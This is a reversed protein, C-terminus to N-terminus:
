KVSLPRVRGTICSDNDYGNGPGSTISVEARFGSTCSADANIDYTFTGAQAGKGFAGQYHGQNPDNDCRVQPLEITGNPPGGLVVPSLGDGGILQQFYDPPYITAPSLITSVIRVHAVPDLYLLFGRAQQTSPSCEVHMATLAVGRGSPIHMTGSGAFSGNCGALALVGTGVL